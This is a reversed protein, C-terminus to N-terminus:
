GRGPAIATFLLNVLMGRTPADPQRLDCTTKVLRYKANHGGRAAVATFSNADLNSALNTFARSLAM